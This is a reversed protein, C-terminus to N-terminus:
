RVPVRSSQVHLFTGALVKGTHDREWRAASALCVGNLSAAVTKVIALTVNWSQAQAYVLLVFEGSHLAGCCPCLRGQCDFPTIRSLHCLGGTPNRDRHAADSQEPLSWTEAGADLQSQSHACSLRALQVRMIRLCFVYAHRCTLYTHRDRLAVINSM